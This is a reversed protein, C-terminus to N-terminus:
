PNGPGRRGSGGPELLPFPVPYREQWPMVLEAGDLVPLVREVPRGGVRVRGPRAPHLPDAAADGAGPRRRGRGAGALAGPRGRGPPRNRGRRGAPRGPLLPHRLPAAGAGADGV